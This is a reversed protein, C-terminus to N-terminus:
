RGEYHPNPEKVLDASYDPEGDGYAAELGRTSALLWGERDDENEGKPLVTVLLQTDPELKCPEDLCIKEGDFHARVAKMKIGEM